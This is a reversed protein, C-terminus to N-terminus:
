SVKVNASALYAQLMSNLVEILKQIDDDNEIPQSMKIIILDNQGSAVLFDHYKANIFDCFLKNLQDFRHKLEDPSLAIDAFFTGKNLHFEIRINDNAYNGVQPLPLRVFWGSNKTLPVARYFDRIDTRMHFGYKGTKEDDSSKIIMTSNAQQWEELALIIREEISLKEKRPLLNKIAFFLVMVTVLTGSVDKVAGAIALAEFGNLAMEIIAAVIAVIGFIGGWLTEIGIKRM